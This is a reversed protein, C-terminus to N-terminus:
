MMITPTNNLRKMIENKENVLQLATERLQTYPEGKQVSFNGMTYGVIDDYSQGVFRAVMALSVCIKMLRKFLSPIDVVKVLSDDSHGYSIEDLTLDNTSIGTIKTVEKFGDDGYIEVYDNVSYVTGDDVTATVSTGKSIAGNLQNGVGSHTVRGHLYKLIVKQEKDTFNSISSDQGLRIRGSRSFNLDSITLATGDNKVSRVALLPSKKTFLTEKDTGDQVEYEIAPTFVTNYYREIQYEVDEILETTDADNIESSLIGSVVRVEAVTIFRAAM